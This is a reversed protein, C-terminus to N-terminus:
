DFFIPSIPKGYQTEICGINSNILFVEICESCKENTEICGINSNILYRDQVEGRKARTEICGINSNIREIAKHELDM